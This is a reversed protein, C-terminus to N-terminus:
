HRQRVSKRDAGCSNGARYVPFHSPGYADVAAERVVESCASNGKVYASTLIAQGRVDDMELSVKLLGMASAATWRWFATAQSKQRRSLSNMICATCPIRTRQPAARSLAKRWPLWACPSSAYRCRRFNDGRHHGERRELADESTNVGKEANVYGEALRMPDVGKEQALIKKALPELGREKAM